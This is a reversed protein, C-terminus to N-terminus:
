DDSLLSIFAKWPGTENGYYKMMLRSAQNLHALDHVTWTAILQQLTVIGLEPHIGTKKLDGPTLQLGKLITINHARYQEFEQLLQEFSKGKSNHFQAFRDFSEFTKNEEPGLIIKIRPIWDTQEGHILHGLVDFPSWTNEGENKHIWDNPLEGLLKRYVSPSRDLLQISTELDFVM